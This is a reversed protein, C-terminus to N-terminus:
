AFRRRLWNGLGDVLTVLVLVVLLLATVERYNMLRLSAILEFGIGGAGVMGVVTSARFNFEWRYVIVDAMRPWVPPLVGHLLVQLPRAGSSRVAEVTAEDLHEISEAFFKGVMGASHIGLALVGPLVGFGVAAVFLIGLILDPVARLLNLAGRAVAYVVPHPSTNRAALLALPVSLVVALATSVVSMAFTDWLPRGWRRWDTFDPPLGEAVLDVFDGVGAAIRALDFLGVAYACAVVVATVVALGAAKHLWHRRYAAALAGWDASRPRDLTVVRTETL